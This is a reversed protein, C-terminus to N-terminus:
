RLRPLGHKEPNESNLKHSLDADFEQQQKVFALLADKLVEFSKSNEIIENLAPVSYQVCVSYGLLMDFNHGLEFFRQEWDQDTFPRAKETVRFAGLWSKIPSHSYQM